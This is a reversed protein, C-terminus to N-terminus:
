ALAPVAAAWKSWSPRSQLLGALDFVQVAHVAPLPGADLAVDLVAQWRAPLEDISAAVMATPLALLLPEDLLDLLGQVARHGGFHLLTAGGADPALRRPMRRTSRLAFAASGDSAHRITRFAYDDIHLYSSAQALDRCLLAAPARGGLDECRRLKDSAAKDDLQCVSGYGAASPVAVIAGARVQTAVYGLVCGQPNQSHVEHRHLRQM